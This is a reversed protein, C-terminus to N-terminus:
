EAAKGASCLYRDKELVSGEARLHGKPIQELVTVAEGTAEERCIGPLTKDVKCGISLGIAMVAAETLHCEAPAKVTDLGRSGAGQGEVALVQGCVRGFPLYFDDFAGRPTDGHYRWTAHLTSRHILSVHRTTSRTSPAGACRWGPVREQSM